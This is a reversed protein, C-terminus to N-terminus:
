NKFKRIKILQVKQPQTLRETAAQWATPSINKAKDKLLSFTQKPYLSYCERLAWGVGKQVYLHSDDFQRLIMKNFYSYSPYKKRLNFYYVIGVISMRRQWPNKSRSWKEFIKKMTAPYAEFFKAYISCLGDSLAWNDAKKSWQFLIKRNKWQEQLSQQSAWYIAASLVDYIMSNQYIYHWIKWEHNKPFICKDHHIANKIQGTKLNLFKYQSCKGGIYWEHVHHNKEPTLGLLQDQFEELHNKYM